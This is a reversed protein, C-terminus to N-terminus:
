TDAQWKSYQLNLVGVCGFLFRYRYLSCVAELEKNTKEKAASLGCNGYCWSSCLCSVHILTFFLHGIKVTSFFNFGSSKKREKVKERGRMSTCKTDRPLASIPRRLPTNCCENYRSSSKSLEEPKSGSTEPTKHCSSKDSTTQWLWICDTQHWLPSLHSKKRLAWSYM